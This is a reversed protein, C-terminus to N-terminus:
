TCGRPLCQLPMRFEREQILDSNYCTYSDATCVTVSYDDCRQCALQGMNADFKACRKNVFAWFWAYRLSACESCAGFFFLNFKDAFEQELSTYDPNDGNLVLEANEKLASLADMSLALWTLEAVVTLVLFVQFLSLIRTGQWKTYPSEKRQYYIGQCGLYSM